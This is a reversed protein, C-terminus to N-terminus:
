FLVTDVCPKVALSVVSGERWVTAKYQSFTM